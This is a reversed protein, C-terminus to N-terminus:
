EIEANLLISGISGNPLLDVLGHGPTCRQRAPRGGNLPPQRLEHVFALEVGGDVRIHNLKTMDM